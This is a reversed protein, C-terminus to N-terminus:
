QVKTYIREVESFGLRELVKGFDHHLKVNAVIRQVGIDWLSQFAWKMFRMGALGERYEPSLYLVDASATLSNIYHPHSRVFFVYYGVLVGQDRATVIHLQKSEWAAMYFNFDPSLKIKDKNLAIESWHAQFLLVMDDWVEYFNETAFDM